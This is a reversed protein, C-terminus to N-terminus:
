GGPSDNWGQQKLRECYAQAWRLALWEEHFRETLVLDQDQFIQVEVPVARPFIVCRVDCKRRRLSWLVRTGPQVTYTDVRSARGKTGRRRNYPNLPLSLTFLPPPPTLGM